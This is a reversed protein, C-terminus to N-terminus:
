QGNKRLITERITGILLILLLVTSWFIIGDTHGIEERDLVLQDPEPTPTISGGLPSSTVTVTPILQRTPQSILSMFALAALALIMVVMVLLAWM